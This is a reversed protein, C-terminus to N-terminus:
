LATYKYTVHNVTFSSEAAWGRVLLAGEITLHLGEHSINQGGGMVLPVVWGMVLTGRASEKEEKVFEGDKEWKWLRGKKEPQEKAIVNPDRPATQTFLTSDILTWCREKPPVPHGQVPVPHDQVPVPHGQVPVPYDQVPAPHDKVPM